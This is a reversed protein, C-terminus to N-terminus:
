FVHGPQTIYFYINAIPVHKAVFLTRLHKPSGLTGLQDLTPKRGLMWPTKGYTNKALFTKKLLRAELVPM